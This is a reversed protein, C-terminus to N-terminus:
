CKDFLLNERTFQKENKQRTMNFSEARFANQEGNFVILYGIAESM